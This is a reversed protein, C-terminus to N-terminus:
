CTTERNYFVKMQHVIVPQSTMEEAYDPIKGITGNSRLFLASLLEDSAIPRKITALIHHIYEHDVYMRRLFSGRLVFGGYGGYCEGPAMDGWVNADFKAICQGNMDYKLWAVDMRNCVWVDDELLILWDVERAAKILRNVYAICSGVTIFHMGNSAASRFKSDFPLLVVPHYADWDLSTQGDVYVFLPASTYVRRFMALVLKTAGLHALSTQYYGGIRGESPLLLDTQLCTTLMNCPRLYWYLMLSTILLLSM